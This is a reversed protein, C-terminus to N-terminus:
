WWAILKSSENNPFKVGVVQVQRNKDDVFEYMCGSVPVGAMDAVIVEVVVVGRGQVSCPAQGM